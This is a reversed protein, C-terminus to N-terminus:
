VDYLKQLMPGYTKMVNRRILKMTQTLMGNDVTFDEPIFLYKRPIEYGGFIERIKAFVLQDFKKFEKTKETLDRNKVAEACAADFFQKKVPDAAVGQTINDYIKNFVRPVASLGTPRVEQFNKLLLDVSQAFAISGGCHIYTHLDGAMGFSHAWPLISVVVMDSTLIFEEVSVQANHALSGHHLLVGKPDGTTGSTYIICATESWYPKSSKMPNNKGREELAALSNEGEGFIIFVDKLTPIAKGFGKVINSIKQDRVFLYKIAADQIIYQWTRQLEKEYMPIFVGGLGHVANECVFWEV